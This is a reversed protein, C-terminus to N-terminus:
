WDGQEAAAVGVERLVHGRAEIHRRVGHVRRELEAAGVALAVAEALALEPEVADVVVLGGTHPQKKHTSQKKRPSTRRQARARLWMMMM